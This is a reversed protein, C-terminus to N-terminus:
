VMMQPEHGSQRLYCKNWHYTEILNKLFLVWSHGLKEANLLIDESEFVMFTAQGVSPSPNPPKSIAQFSSKQAEPDFIQTKFFTDAIKFIVINFTNDMELFFSLERGSHTKWSKDSTCIQM